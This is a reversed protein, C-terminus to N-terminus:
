LKNTIHTWRERRKIKGITDPNVNYIKAIAVSNMGEQLKLWIDVVDDETLTNRSKRLLNYDKSINTWIHGNKIDSINTRSINFDGAIIKGSEGRELRRCIEKVQEETLISVPSDEGFRSQIGLDKARKLNEESTVWELNELRDDLRDGNIHDVEPLNNPNPIFTEALLRALRRFYKKGKHSLCIERRGHMNIWSRVFKNTEINKVRGDKYLIYHTEEGKINIVKYEM